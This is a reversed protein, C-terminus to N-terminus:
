GRTTSSARRGASRATRTATSGASSSRTACCRRRTPLAAPRHGRPRACGRWSTRLSEALDLVEDVSPPALGGLARLLALGATDSAEETAVSSRMSRTSTGRGSECRPPSARRARTTSESSGRWRAAGTAGQRGQGLARARPAQGTADRALVDFEGLGLIAMLRDHLESPGDFMAGLENYSLFPRYMELAGDLGPRRSRSSEATRPASKSDATTSAAGHPGRGSSRSRPSQGRGRLDRRGVRTRPSAPQALRRALGELSAGLALQVRDAPDRAGRCLQEQGSGNRGIVLTLGPGLPVDLTAPPGVGRFGEVRVSRLYVHRAMTPRYLPTPQRSWSAQWGRAM